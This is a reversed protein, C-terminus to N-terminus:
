RPSRPPRVMPCCPYPCSRCDGCCSRAARAHVPVHRAGPRLRRVRLLLAAARRLLRHTERLAVRRLRHLSEGVRDRLPAAITAAWAKMPAFHRERPGGTLFHGRSQLRLEGGDDFSIASNAGDLKEEVVIHEGASGSSRCPTSTRTAPSSAPPSSIRRGRTNACCTTLQVPQGGTGVDFQQSYLVKCHLTIPMSSRSKSSAPRSPAPCVSPGPGVSAAPCVSSARSVTSSTVPSRRWVRRARCPNQNGSTM